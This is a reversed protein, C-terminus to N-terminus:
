DNREGIPDPEHLPIQVIISTGKGPTGYIGVTGGWLLARERMGLLGLSKSHTIQNETIGRGNDKVKLIAHQQNKELRIWAENANAHRAINTLTEQFIRFVTTSRDPDLTIEEPAVTFHCHIGTRSQFEQIQWEIAATLGLDDLVGPRLETSIKRLTRITTDVLEAMSKTRQRLLEPKKPIRRKLWSLDMKLITLQQGLEDHIERSIRTREEEVMSNLRSSLSRLEEQSRRLEKEVNRQQDELAIERERQRYSDYLIGTAHSLIEMGAQEAAGYGAPRNAIGIMGLVQNERIIPVGLFTRLQLPGLLLKGRRPDNPADNAIVVKGTRIVEGFLHDLRDFLIYRREGGGRLAEEYFSHPAAAESPAGEYAIVQLRAGEIVVGIFAHESETQHLASRLLRSSTEHWDRSDLYAAMAETVAALQETKIRLAEEAQKRETIDMMAGIMRIPRGNPDHVVHGRDFLTAYTGDGRRFRYEDSWFRGGSDIVKNINVVVRERDEPHLRSTWSGVGSEIEEPKYNFYAHFNENWWVTDNVLDWDWIADNTARTALHFREDSKRLAEETKKRDSIDAVVAVIGNMTSGAGPLPAISISLDIISGDKRPHRMERGTFGCGGALDISIIPFPRDLIEAESWGFIQEAAPNWMKVRGQPDLAFIALPSAQILARLTENTERLAEEARRRETIDAAIGAIRYIKGTEDKIPFARDRVWRIAGDPRIVRYEVDSPQGEDQRQLLTVVHPQDEPHIADLFSRPEDYLSQCSRGWIQEYAPSIYLTRQPNHEAVWFVEHINEALQRFRRESDQLEQEAKRWETVDEALVLRAEKGHFLILNWTVEVEILSGNKKRHIWIGARTPDPSAPERSANQLYHRLVPVEEPPRIDYVSMQLFEEPSYGYHRVAAENVALFRQSEPDAVWMPHPNRDFLLRYQEESQLLAEQARLRETVDNALVLRGDTGMFSLSRITIQVDIVTGDKKRHKWIGYSGFDPNVKGIYEILVPVEEPPRIEKITMSLFEELSYGYHRLAADNVALFALTKADYIWMPHPNGEFLLRYQEESQRLFAEARKRDTIDLIFCIGQYDEQNELLAAGILIPVRCGDKRIYEKEYPTCTGKERLEAIAKEDLPLYEPPTMDRWHLQGAHLAEKTYGVMQLFADNADKIKGDADWFIIGLLNSEALRRFRGESRKLEEEARKRETMDELIGMVGRIEGTADRLPATSLSVEILSGDKRLRRVEMNAFVKGQLVAETRSKFDEEKEKPIIPNFRGLAEEASWGFIQEAAPNWRNVKGDLDLAIIALPSSEILAQLTQNTERLTDEAQKRDTIDQATGVMRIAKGAPDCIVEGEAHLTRLAGDSRFIRYDFGFPRCDGTAASIIRSVRERDDPHNYRSVSDYTLESGPRLGYIRYLEDSWSIAGSTLELSWSGIHAIEQAKALQAESQRLKEDAERRRSIDDVVAVLCKPQGSADHIQSASLNAWIIQGDKRIYRKEMKYQTIEGALMRAKFALNLTLDEPYTVDQFTKGGILEEKTYGLMEALRENLDIYGGELNVVAIGSPAQDFIARFREESERLNSTMTEALEVARQRATTMSRITAFLLLSFTTGGLLVLLPLNEQATQPSHPISFFVYWTRGAVEITSVRSYRPQDSRRNAHQVRDDDYMLRDATLLPMPDDSPETGGDFIEFDFDRASMEGFVNHMLEKMNFSASVLGLLARRREEVTGPVGARYVPIRIAFGTEGSGSLVIEGTSTPLGTDRARELSALRVPDSGIDFGYQPVATYSKVYEIPYYFPRDGPPYISYAPANHDPSTTDSRVKREFAAKEEKSVYRAFVLDHIGPHRKQLALLDVYKNWDAHTVNERVSFLSRTAFLADIYSEIRRRIVETAGDVEKQFRARDEKEVNESTYYWATGTLLLTFLLVILASPTEFLSRTFKQLRETPAGPTRKQPSPAKM